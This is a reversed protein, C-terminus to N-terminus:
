FFYNLLGEVLLDRSGLDKLYKAFIPNDTVIGDVNLNLVKSLNNERNVTWVYIKKNYKHTLTVTEKNVFSSEISFANIYELSYYNGYIAPTIYVTTIEPAIDKVMKLTDLDMSAISCQKEFNYEKIEDIVQHEIDKNHSTKKIEIMLKIKGDAKEIM